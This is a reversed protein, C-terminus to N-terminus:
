EIKKDNKDGIPKCIPIDLDTTIPNIVVLVVSALISSIIGTTVGVTIAERNMAANVGRIAPLRPVCFSYVYVDSVVGCFV